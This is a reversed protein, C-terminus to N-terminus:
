KGRNQVVKVVRIANDQGPGTSTHIVPAIKAQVDPHITLDGRIQNQNRFGMIDAITEMESDFTTEYQSICGKNYVLEM